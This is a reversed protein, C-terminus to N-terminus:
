EVNGKLSSLKKSEKRAEVLDWVLNHVEIRLQQLSKELQQAKKDLASLTQSVKYFDIVM